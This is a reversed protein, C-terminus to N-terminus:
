NIDEGAFLSTGVEIAAIINAAQGTGVVAVATATGVVAIATGVEVVATATGVVVVVQIFAIMMLDTDVEATAVFSTGKATGAATQFCAMPGTGGEAVALVFPAVLPDFHFGLPGVEGARRHWHCVLPGGVLTSGELCDSGVEELTHRALCDVALAGM